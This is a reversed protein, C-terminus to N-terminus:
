TAQFTCACLCVYMSAHSEAACECSRVLMAVWAKFLCLFCWVKAKGKRMLAMQVLPTNNLVSSMNPAGPGGKLLGEVGEPPGFEDDAEGGEKVGALM